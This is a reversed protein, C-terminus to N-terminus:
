VCPTNEPFMQSDDIKGEDSVNQEDSNNM